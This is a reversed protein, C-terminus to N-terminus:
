KSWRRTWEPVVAPATTQCFMNMMATTYQRTIASQAFTAVLRTAGQLLPIGGTMESEYVPIWAAQSTGAGDPKEAGVFRLVADLVAKNIVAQISLRNECVVPMEVLSRNYYTAKRVKWRGDWFDVSYGVSKAAEMKASRAAGTKVFYSERNVWPSKYIKMRAVGDEGRLFPM